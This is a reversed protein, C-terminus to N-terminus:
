VYLVFTHLLRLISPTPQECLALICPWIIFFPYILLIFCLSCLNNISDVDFFFPNIFYFLLYTKHDDGDDDDDKHDDAAMM